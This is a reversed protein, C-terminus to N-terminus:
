NGKRKSTDNGNELVSPPHPFHHEQLFGSTKGRCKKGEDKIDDM